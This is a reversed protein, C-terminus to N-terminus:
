VSVGTMLLKILRQKNLKSYGKLGNLKCLSKIQPLTLDNRMIKWTEIYTSTKMVTMRRIEIRVDINDHVIEQFRGRYWYNNIFQRRSDTDEIEDQIRWVTLGACGHVPTFMAEGMRADEKTEFKIWQNKGKNYGVANNIYHNIMPVYVAKHAEQYIKDQIDDPLFDTFLNYEITEQGCNKLFQNIVRHEQIPNM